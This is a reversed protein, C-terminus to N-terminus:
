WERGGLVCSYMGNYTLYLFSLIAQPLNAALVTAILGMEGINVFSKPNVTGMGLEYLQKINSIGLTRNGEFYLGM